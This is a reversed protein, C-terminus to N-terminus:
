HKSCQFYVQYDTFILRRRSLLMEQYTSGRTYWISTQIDTLPNQVAVFAHGGIKVLSTAKRPRSVGPLGYDSNNGAAAIITVFANRYISDMNRIANHKEEPNDQDICYRDVWLYRMGLKLTVFMADSVTKPVDTLIQNNSAADEAFEEGWVYSLCTYRCNPASCLVREKCDILRTPTFDCRISRGCMTAHESQCQRIYENFLDYNVSSPEVTRSCPLYTHEGSKFDVFRAQVPLLYITLRNGGSNFELWFLTGRSYTLTPHPLQLHHLAFDRLLNEAKKDGFFTRLLQTLQDCIPFNGQQGRIFHNHPLASTIPCM